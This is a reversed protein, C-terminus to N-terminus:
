EFVKKRISYKVNGRFISCYYANGIKNMFSRSYHNCADKYTLNKQRKKKNSNDITYPNLHNIPFALIVAEKISHKTSILSYTNQDCYEKYLKKM